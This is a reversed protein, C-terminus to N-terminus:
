RKLADANEKGVAGAAMNKMMSYGPVHSLENDELKGM